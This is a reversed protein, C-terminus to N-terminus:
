PRTTAASPTSRSIASPSNKVISPGEPDPLVVSSRTIAPSSFGSLPMTSMPPCSTVSEGAGGPVALAVNEAATLRSFVEVNQFTRAVGLGAMKYSSRKLLDQDRFRVEGYSPPRFGSLVALLTSKGAGNPGILATITGSRVDISADRLAVLGGFRVTIDRAELLPAQLSM